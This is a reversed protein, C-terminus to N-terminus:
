GLVVPLLLLLSLVGWVAQERWSRERWVLASIVLIAPISAVKMMVVLSVPNISVMQYFKVLEYVTFTGGAAVGPWSFVATRLNGWGRHFWLGLALLVLNSMLLLIYWNSHSLIVQDMVASVAAVGVVFVFLRRGGRGTDVVHGRLAFLVGLLCLGLASALQVHSLHEGFFANGATILGLAVPMVYQGSSMSARTLKQQMVYLVWLVGGKLVFAGWLWPHMMAQGVGKALLGHYLPWVCALGALTWVGNFLAIARTHLVMSAYKKACVSVIGLMFVALLLLNALTM